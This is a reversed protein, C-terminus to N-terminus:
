DATGFLTRQFAGLQKPCDCARRELAQRDIVTIRGRKYAIWGAKQFEAAINSVSARQVGLADAIADQTVFLEDIGAADAARLLWSSLREPIRHRANCASLQQAQVGLWAECAFLLRPISADHEALRIIEEAALLYASGPVRGVIFNLHKEFGFVVTGGVLGESGVMGTGVFDGDVEVAVALMGSIPFILHDIPEGPRVVVDKSLFDRRTLNRQLEPHRRVLAALIQNRHM